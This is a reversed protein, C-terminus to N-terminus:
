EVIRGNKLFPFRAKDMMEVFAKVPEYDPHRPLLVFDSGAHLICAHYGELMDHLMAAHSPTDTWLHYPLNSRFEVWSRKGTRRVRITMLDADASIHLM